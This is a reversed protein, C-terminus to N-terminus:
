RGEKGLENVEFGGEPDRHKFVDVRQLIEKKVHELKETLQAGITVRHVLPLLMSRGFAACVYLLAKTFTVNNRLVDNVALVLVMNKTFSPRGDKGLLDFYELAGCWRGYCWCMVAQDWRM